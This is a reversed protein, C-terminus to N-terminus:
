RRGHHGSLGIDLLQRIVKETGGGAHRLKAEVWEPTGEMRIITETLTIGRDTAWNAVIIRFAEDM